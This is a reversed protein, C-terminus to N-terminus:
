QPISSKGNSREGAVQSTRVTRSRLCCHPASPKTEHANVKSSGLNAQISSGVTGVLTPSALTAPIGFRRSQGDEYVEKGKAFCRAQLPICGLLHCQPVRPVTADSGVPAEPPPALKAQGLNASVNHSLSACRHHNSTMVGELLGQPWAALSLSVLRRDPDPWKGEYPPSPWLNVKFVATSLM